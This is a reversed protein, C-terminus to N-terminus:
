FSAQSLLYKLNDDAFRMGAGVFMNKNEKSVFDDAGFTFYIHDTFFVKNLWKFHPRDDREIAPNSPPVHGTIRNRGNWDYLELSSVWRYNRATDLPIDLDAAVGFANEFLGTRVSLWDYMKGVQINYMLYDFKREVERKFPAFFLQSKPDLELESPQILNHNQDFYMRLKEEDEVFADGNGQIAAIGALYFYDDVFHLRVNIHGKANEVSSFIGSGTMSESHGDVIIALRNMADFYDRAGEMATRLDDSLAPDSVLQGLVGQGTDIKHMVNDLSESTQAMNDTIRRMDQDLTQSLHDLSSQAQHVIRPMDEQLIGAVAHVRELTQSLQERNHSVIDDLHQVFSAMHQATEQMATVTSTLQDLTNHHVLTQQVSSSIDNVQSVTQDVHQVVDDLSAPPREPQTLVSGAQIAPLHADGPALEVFKTGLMGDQRVVGYANSHLVYQKLVMIQVAVYSGDRALQIDDVWGVKVGAIQVDAQQSLGSVDHFHLTYPQYQHADLRWARIQLGMYLFVAIAALIFMGVATETTIRM